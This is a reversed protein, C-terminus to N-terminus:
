AASSPVPRLDSEALRGLDPHRRKRVAVKEGGCLMELVGDVCQGQQLQVGNVGAFDAHRGPFRRCCSTQQVRSEILDDRCRFAM